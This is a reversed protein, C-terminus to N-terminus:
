VEMIIPLIMPNRKTKNYFFKAAIDRTTNKLLGWDKSYYNSTDDIKEKINEIAEKIIDDSEKSYVFGRTVIDPGAIIKGTEKSITFVIVVVGDQSLQQRDKLVINGIDGVGLGDVLTSGANVKGKIKVASKTVEVKSGNQAIIVNNKPVGTEIATDKHAKLM